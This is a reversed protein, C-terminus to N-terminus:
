KKACMEEFSSCRYQEIKKYTDLRANWTFNIRRKDRTKGNGCTTNLDSIHDFPIFFYDVAGQSGQFPNYLVVRLAGVKTEVGQICAVFVTVKKIKNYRNKHWTSNREAKSISCTKADSKDDAFDWELNEYGVWTLKGEIAICEEIMAEINLQRPEVTGIDFYKSVVERYLVDNKTNNMKIGIPIWKQQQMMYIGM